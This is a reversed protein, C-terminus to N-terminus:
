SYTAEKTKVKVHIIGVFYPLVIEVWKSLLLTFIILSIWILCCYAAYPAERSAWITFFRGIMHFVQTWDRPRSSGRSFPISVWELIRTQLIGHVPSGPPSCDKPTVSVDPMVSLSLFMSCIIEITYYMFNNWSFFFLWILNSFCMIDSYWWSSACHM